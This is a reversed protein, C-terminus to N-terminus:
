SRPRFSILGRGSGILLREGGEAGAAALFTIPEDFIQDFTVARDASLVLLRWRKVDRPAAGALALHPAAGAAFRLAVAHTLSFDGLSVEFQSRGALDIGSATTGGLVLARSEPWDVIAVVGRDKPYPLEALARGNEDRIVIRRGYEAVAVWGPTGANRPALAALQADRSESRWVEHGRADLRVTADSPTAYLEVQADGDLDGPLLATPPLNAQPRYRWRRQGDLTLTETESFGGGTQVVSLAGDLRVLRSFWSWKQPMEGSFDVRGRKGLTAPDFLDAGTGTVVAIEAGPAEDFDGVQYSASGSYVPRIAFADADTVVRPEGIRALTARRRAVTTPFLDPRGFAVVTLAAAVLWLLAVGARVVPSGGRWMRGSLYGALAGLPIAVVGILIPSFVLAIAATSSSPFVFVSLRVGIETALAAVGAGSVIWPDRVWRGVVLLFLYPAFAYAGFMLLAVGGDGRLSTAMIAFAITAVLGALRWSTSM